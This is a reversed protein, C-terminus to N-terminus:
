AILLEGRRRRAVPRQQHPQAREAPQDLDTHLSGAGVPRPQGAVQGPLPDLQDLDVARVALRETYINCTYM